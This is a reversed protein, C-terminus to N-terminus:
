GRNEIEPLPIAHLLQPCSGVERISGRPKSGQRPDPQVTRIRGAQRPSTPNRSPPGHLDLRREPRLEASVCGILSLARESLCGTTSLSHPTTM